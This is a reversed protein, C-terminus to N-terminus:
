FLIRFYNSHVYVKKPDCNKTPTKTPTKKTQTKKTPTKKTPTKRSSAKRKPKSPSAKKNGLGFNHQLPLTFSLLQQNGKNIIVVAEAHRITTSVDDFWPALVTLGETIDDYTEFLSEEATLLETWPLSHISGGEIFKFTIKKNEALSLSPSTGHLSLSLFLSLNSQM